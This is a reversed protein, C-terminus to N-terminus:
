CYHRIVVQVRERGQYADISPDYTISFRINQPQGRFLAAAQEESSKECLFIRFAEPDGFYVADMSGGAGDELLLRTVNKNKGVIDARLPHVDRVAFVPKENGKGYPELCAFERILPIRIYYLPMPVDIHIKEIFDEDTLSTKANLERRFQEMNEKPMSLGAAMPHGGYKTMLADCKTMEEYMSYAEISRGSGKIGGDEADTLVFIPRHYQERIRGAIIGALSEHCQPLYVVMVKDEYIRQQVIQERAQELGELTLSKRRDNLEVLERALQSAKELTPEMLLQLSRKATDLRGSANICPGLVFGFHWSRIQERQLGNQLILALLGPNETEHIAKLGLKVLMRNEGTLEMVDGVTAFGVHAIMSFSEEACIGMRGYLVQILKWAVAAGCLGKYPYTCDPQKPNIVADAPPVKYAKQGDDDVSFPVEHHDTIIVTMGSEKAFAIEEIASIGNDCTVITDIRDELAKTIMSCNIGYGDRVRDPIVHDAAAGCRSLGTLLIYSANVGDIDYDGIVRIKKHEAIKQQLIAAGQDADKLLHPDHLEERTCALYAAIAEDGIIDRNRIIRATVPDIGFKKGIAKFDAKKASVFWQEKQDLVKKNQTQEQEKAQQKKQNDAQEKQTQNLRGDEKAKGTLVQLSKKRCAERLRESRLTFRM